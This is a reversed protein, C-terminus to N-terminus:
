ARSQVTTPIDFDSVVVYLVHVRALAWFESWRIEPLIVIIPVGTQKTERQM